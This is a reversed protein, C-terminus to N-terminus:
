SNTASNRRFLTYYLHSYPLKTWDPIPLRELGYVWKMWAPYRNQRLMDIYPSVWNLERAGQRHLRLDRFGLSDPWPPCDVVGWKVETYDLDRLYSGFSFPSFFKLDGHTWPIQYKRHVMRHSLFGVNHRNVHIALLWKDTCAAMRSLHQIPDPCTPLYVFNWCLDWHRGKVVLDDVDNNGILELRDNLVLEDWHVLADKNADVLTVKCNALAFGLSYLSPMAKAGSAPLELVSKIMYKNTLRQFLKALAFREYTVGFVEVEAVSSEAIAM